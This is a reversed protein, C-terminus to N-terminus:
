GDLKGGEWFHGYEDTLKPKGYVDICMIVM